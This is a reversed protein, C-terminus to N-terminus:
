LFGPLLRDGGAFNALLRFRTKRPRPAVWAAFRLCPASLGRSLAGFHDFHPLRRRKIVPLCCRLTSIAQSSPEAPTPSRPMDAHPNGLFKPPGTGEASLSATLSAAFPFCGRGPPSPCRDRRSRVVSAHATDRPYALFGRSVLSPFASHKMTAPFCPFEGPPGQPAFPAGSCPVAPPFSSPFVPDRYRRM